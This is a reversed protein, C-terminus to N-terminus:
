KNKVLELVQTLGFNSDEAWSVSAELFDSITNNAWDNSLGVGNLPQGECPERDAMLAKIFLLFYKEDKVNELLNNLTEM